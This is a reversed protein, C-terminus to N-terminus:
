RFEPTALQAAILRLLVAAQDVLYMHGGDLELTETAASSVTSWQAAQESSVLLDDRGRMSTIPVKLPTRVRPRYNEHMEVDARLVPLLLERLEPHALAPHRYGALLHVQELFEEDDLDSARIQRYTFPGASGSVFMHDLQVGRIEEFRHAMEFALVAGLSHGFIALRDSDRVQPLVQPMLADVAEEVTTLAPEAFLEERGPLQVAVVDIRKPAVPRWARFFSAGSGAYPLCILSLREM